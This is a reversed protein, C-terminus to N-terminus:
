RFFRKRLRNKWLIEVRGLARDALLFIVNELALLVVPFISGAFETDPGLLLRTLVWLAAALANFFVLKAALRPIRGSIRDFAPKVIPYFGFFGYVAATQRDAALLASLIATAGYSAWAMRNGDESKVPILVLAALLPACYMAGPIVAGLLMVAVALATM